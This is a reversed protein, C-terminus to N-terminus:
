RRLIADAEAEALLIAPGPGRPTLRTQLAERLAEGGHALLLENWDKASAPRLREPHGGLWRLANALAPAAQDGAADADHALLVRRRV